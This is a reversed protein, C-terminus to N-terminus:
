FARNVRRPAASRAAAVSRRRSGRATPPRWASPRSRAPAGASGRIGARPRICHHGSRGIGRYGIAHAQHLQPGIAHAQHMYPLTGSQMAMACLRSTHARIKPAHLGNGIASAHQLQQDRRQVGRSFRRLNGPPYRTSHSLAWHNGVARRIGAEKPKAM